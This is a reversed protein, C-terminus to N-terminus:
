HMHIHTHTYTHILTHTYTHIFYHVVELASIEKDLRLVEDLEAISASPSKSFPMGVKEKLVEELDLRGRYLDVFSKLQRARRRESAESKWMIRLKNMMIKIERYTTYKDITEQMASKEKTNEESEIRSLLEYKSRMEELKSTTADDLL